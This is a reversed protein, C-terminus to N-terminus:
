TTARNGIYASTSSCTAGAARAARHRALEPRQRDRPRPPIHNVRGNLPNFNAPVNLGEPYGMQTTRFCTTPAQSPACLGQSPQQTIAIPVVHPGNFSLLNEGGLRNFHVYSSATPRACCPRRRQPQLGRRRAARLQEPRSQRARSRLDIRGDGAAAHQTAPDFNTLNNDDEWQPTAFEYRLGLNLTLNPSAAGTTRCTASTCASGCSSSSRTSWSTAHQARRDPLRRPQLDGRRGRRRGAPQVPGGYRTRRRVESERRGSRHQHAPVRLRDQAHPPRAIWSYNLRTDVVFPNQFQPNSSQRGWATWGGVAQQTLGGAFVADTPLGTIGYAELMNPSAPASRPRAPRRHALRRRAGRAALQALAHAHRRRRDAPEAGRRLRQGPQQDRGAIPPPEFNNVKRHSFRVFASTATSLQQDVKVDFKDNYDQAARCRTTTTRSAPARRRRCGPSCRARSRRSRRRGSHRRRCLGCRDAPERGAQGHHGAAAGDDARELVDGHAAGPPLRRLQRLLVRPGRM